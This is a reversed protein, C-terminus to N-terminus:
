SYWKDISKFAKTVESDNIYELLLADAAEHGDAESYVSFGENDKLTNILLLEKILDGKKM